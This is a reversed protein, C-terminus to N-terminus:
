APLIQVLLADLAIGEGGLQFVVEAIRQAQLVQGAVAPHVAVRHNGGRVDVAGTHRGAVVQGGTGLGATAVDGGLHPDVLGVQTGAEVGGAKGVFQHAPDLYRALVQLDLGIVMAQTRRDIRAAAEIQGVRGSVPVPRDVLGGGAVGLVLQVVAR